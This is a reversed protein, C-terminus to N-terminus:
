HPGELRRILLSASLASMQRALYTPLPLLPIPSWPVYGHRSYFRRAAERHHLVHLSICTCHQVCAWEEVAKLLRTGIGCGRLDERVALAELYVLGPSQPIRSHMLKMNLLGFLATLSAFWGRYERHLRCYARLPGREVPRGCHLIAVGVVSGERECVLTTDLCLHGAHYIAELLDATHEQAMHGLLMRFLGPFAQVLILAIAGADILSAARVTLAATEPVSRNGDTDTRATEESSM